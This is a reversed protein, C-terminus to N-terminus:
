MSVLDLEGGGDRDMEEFMPIIEEDTIDKKYTKMFKKWNELNIVRGEDDEEDITEGFTGEDFFCDVHFPLLFKLDTM